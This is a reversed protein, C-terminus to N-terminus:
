LQEDFSSQSDEEDLSSKGLAERSIQSAITPTFKNRVSVRHPGVRYEAASPPAAIHEPPDPFDEPPDPFSHDDDDHYSGQQMPMNPPLSPALRRSSSRDFTPQNKNERSSSAYDHTYQEDYQEENPSKYVNHKLISERPARRSQRVAGYHFAGQQDHVPTEDEHADTHEDQDYDYRNQNYDDDEYNQSYTQQNPDYQFKNSAVPEHYSGNAVVDDITNVLVPRSTTVPFLFKRAVNFYLFSFIVFINKLFFLANNYYANGFKCYVALRLGYFPLDLFVITTVQRYFFKEKFILPVMGFFSIAYIAYSWSLIGETSNILVLVLRIDYANLLIEAMNVPRPDNFIVDQQARHNSSSSISQQRTYGPNSHFDLNYEATSTEDENEDAKESLKYHKLKETWDVVALMIIMLEACVDQFADSETAAGVMIMITCPLAGVLVYLFKSPCWEGNHFSATRMWQFYLKVPIWCLLTIVAVYGISVSVILWYSGTGSQQTAVALKEATVLLATAFAGWQLLELAILKKSKSSVM